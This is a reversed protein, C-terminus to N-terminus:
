KLYTWIKIFLFYIIQVRLVRLITTGSSNRKLLDLARSSMRIQVYSEFVQAEFKIAHKSVM